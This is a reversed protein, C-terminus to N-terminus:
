SENRGGPPFQADFAPLAVDGDVADVHTALRARNAGVDHIADGTHEVRRQTWWGGRVQSPGSIRTRTVPAPPKLPARMTLSRSPAPCSTTATVPRRAEGDRTLRAARGPNVITVPSRAPSTEKGSPTSATTCAAATEGPGPMVAVPASNTRFLASTVRRSTPQARRVPTRVNM